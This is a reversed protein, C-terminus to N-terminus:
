DIFHIDFEFLFGPVDTVTVVQCASHDKGGEQNVDDDERGSRALQTDVGLVQLHGFHFVVLEHLIDVDFSEHLGDEGDLDVGALRAAHAADYALLAVHHLLSVGDEHQLVEVQQAGDFVLTVLPFLLEDGVAFLFDFHFLLAEGQLLLGQLGVVFQLLQALAEFQLLFLEAHADLALGLELHGFVLVAVLLLCGAQLALAQAVVRGDGDDAAVQQQVVAVAFLLLVFTRALAQVVQHHAGGDAPLEAEDAHRGALLYLGALADAFDLHEVLELDM